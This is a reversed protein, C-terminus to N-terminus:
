KDIRPFLASDWTLRGPNATIGHAALAPALLAAPNDAALAIAETQSVLGWAVLNRVAQDLTLSSGALTTGGPVRVTGDASRAIRMGAFDYHGAPADAAATADTVLITRGQTKSRLFIKLIAPPVHIGDAIFSAILSDEALQATLPNDFKHIPASLANGLHTSLTAGAAVANAIQEATALTHGLAILKGQTRAARIFAIAGPIEPALTILLIPRRLSAQLRTLLAPDAATMASPPHCGASAPSPNLFPGELHYGPVMTPGFRSNAVARDLAAFRAALNESTATILTPLCQTVGARRMVALAHDLADSTLAADNFDIGAYGNIQLDLLGPSHM